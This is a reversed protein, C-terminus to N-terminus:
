NCLYWKYNDTGGDPGVYLVNSSDVYLFQKQNPDASVRNELRFHTVDDHLIWHAENASPLVTDSSKVLSGVTHLLASTNANYIRYYTVGNIPAMAQFRWQTGDMKYVEENDGAPQFKLDRPNAPDKFDGTTLYWRSNAVSDIYFMQGASETATPDCSGPKLDDYMALERKIEFRRSPAMDSNWIYAYTEKVGNVDQIFAGAHSGDMAGGGNPSLEKSPDSLAFGTGDLHQLFFDTLGEASASLGGYEELEIWRSRTEKGILQYGTERQDAINPDLMRNELREYALRLEPALLDEAFFQGLSKDSIREIILSLVAYTHSAYLSGPEAEGPVVLNGNYQTPESIWLGIMQEITLESAPVGYKYAAEDHHGQDDEYGGFSLGSTHDHLHAITIDEVHDGFSGGYPQIDDLIGGSGFVKQNSSIKNDAILKRIAARIPAKSVSALRLIPNAPITEALSPDRWGMSQSEVLIGDKRIAITGGLLAREKIDDSFVKVVRATKSNPDNGPFANNIPYNGLKDHRALGIDAYSNNCKDDAAFDNYCQVHVAIINTGDVLAARAEDRIGLYHYAEAMWSDHVNTALVGNIYISASNGWRGWFVLKNFDAPTLNVQKRMWFEYEDFSKQTYGPQGQGTQGFGGTQNQQWDSNLSYGSHMWPAQAIESPCSTEDEYYRRFKSGYRSRCSAPRQAPNPNTFSISWTDGGFVGPKVIWDSPDPPAIERDVMARGCDENVDAPPDENFSINSVTATALQNSIHSSLVIGAFTQTGFNNNDNRSRLNWCEGDDSSYSLVAGGKRVAKLWKGPQLYRARYPTPYKDVYNIHRKTKFFGDDRDPNEEWSTITIGYDKAPRYQSQSGYEPRMVFTYNESDADLDGRIMVGIKTWDSPGNVSDIHATIEGDDQLPTYIFHFADINHGIDYGSATISISQDANSWASGALEVSGVDQNLWGTPLAGSSSTSSSSSSSSTSSSSGGCTGILTWSSDSGPISSTYWNAEYLNNQYVMQEGPDAHTYAGGVFDVSPWNPYENIGTCNVDALVDGVPIMSAGCIFFPAFLQQRMFRHM